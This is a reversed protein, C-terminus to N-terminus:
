KTFPILKDIRIIDKDLAREDNVKSFDNALKSVNRAISTIKNNQKETSIHKGLAFRKDLRKYSLNPDLSSGKFAYEKRFSLGNIRGTSQYEIRMEIGKGELYKSLKDFDSIGSDLGEFIAKRIENKVRRKEKNEDSRERANNRGEVVTLGYKLEMAQAFRISRVKSFSDSVIRGDFGCRNSLIHCHPHITNKHSVAIYQNEELGMSKLYEKAIDSMLSTTVKESDKPSWSIVTHWLPRSINRQKAILMFDDIIHKTCDTRTGNSLFIEAGKEKDNVYRIGAPINNSPIPKIIM